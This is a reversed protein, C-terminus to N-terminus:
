QVEGRDPFLQMLGELETRSLAQTSVQLGFRGRLMAELERPTLAWFVSPALALTGLGLAM